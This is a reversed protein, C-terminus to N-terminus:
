AASGHGNVRYSFLFSFEAVSGASSFTCSVLGRDNSFRIASCSEEQTSGPVSSERDNTISGSNNSVNLELGQDESSLGSFWREISLPQGYTMSDLRHAELHVHEQDALGRVWGHDRIQDYTQQRPYILQTIFQLPYHPIRTLLAEAGAPLGRVALADYIWSLASLKDLSPKVVAGFITILEGHTFLLFSNAIKSCVAVPLSDVFGDNIASLKGFVITGVLNTLGCPKLKLGFM